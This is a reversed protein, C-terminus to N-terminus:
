GTSHTQIHQTHRQVLNEIIKAEIETGSESEAPQLTIEEPKQTSNEVL